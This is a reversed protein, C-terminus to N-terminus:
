PRNAPIRTQAPSLSPPRTGTIMGPTARAAIAVTPANNTVTFDSGDSVSGATGTVTGVASTEPATLLGASTISGVTTTWALTPQTELAHGFQDYAVASFQQTGHANLSVSGPTIAIASLTQAVTVTVSSTATSGGPDTITVLFSYTGAKTFTATVDKAANTGHNDFTARGTSKWCCELYLYARKAQILTACLVSLDTTTGFRSPQRPPFPWQQVLDAVTFEGSGSVSGVTATVTGVASTESATLLGASTISGATTPGLLRLSHRWRMASSTMPLRRFNSRATPM